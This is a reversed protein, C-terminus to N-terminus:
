SGCIRGKSDVARRGTSMGAEGKAMASAGEGSVMKLERYRVDWMQERIWEELDEDNHPIHKEQNLGEAVAAKIVNKAIQVSVERVDTVDPLLGSGTGKV